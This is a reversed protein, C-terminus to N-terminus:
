GCTEIELLADGPKVKAGEEVLLREVRGAEPAPLNFAAKDTVLEVLDDGAKVSQGTEVYWFNVLTETEKQEGLPPVKIQKLM